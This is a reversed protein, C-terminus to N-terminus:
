IASASFVTSAPCVHEEMLTVEVLVGPVEAYTKTQHEEVVQADDRYVVHKLADKINRSLKDLDPKTIPYKPASAKLGHKGFHGKPRPLQFTLTVACPGSWCGEAPRHALAEETVRTAWSVTDPNDHKAYTKGDTKSIFPRMSGKPKPLGVVRFRILGSM